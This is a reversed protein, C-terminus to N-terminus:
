QPLRHFCRRFPPPRQIVLRPRKRLEPLIIYRCAEDYGTRGLSNRLDTKAASFAAPRDVPYTRHANEDGPTASKDPAM